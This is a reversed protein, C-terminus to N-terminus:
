LERARPPFERGGRGRLDFEVNDKSGARSPGVDARRAIAGRRGRRPADMDVPTHRRDRLLAGRGLRGFPIAGMAFTHAPPLM